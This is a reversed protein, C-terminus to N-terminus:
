HRMINLISDRMTDGNFGNGTGEDGGNTELSIELPHEQTEQPREAILIVMGNPSTVAARALNDLDSSSTLKEFLLIRDWGYLQKCGHLRIFVDPDYKEKVRTIQYALQETHTNYPNGPYLRPLRLGGNIDYPSNRM